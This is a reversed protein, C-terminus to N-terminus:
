QDKESVSPRIRSFATDFHHNRVHVKKVSLINGLSIVEKLAMLSAERVLAAVDAGTYGKCREDNAIVALDVGDLQPKTGNKTIAKLIDLRDEASPLGVYLTKGLRGPRLIAPDILDPRNTAAMIFVQKREDLDDMEICLQSVVRASSRGEGTVSRRPCLAEFEDFFLLCPASNRAREFVQGVAREREGVYMNMLEPGKVSIFNIGSENAVAM